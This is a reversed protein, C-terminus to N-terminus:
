PGKLSFLYEVLDVLEQETLAKASDEPMLSTATKTKKEISKVPLAYDKGNADRLTIETPTEKVILGTLAQGDDTDIKWTAYQDAIAKSPQLISEFLNERSAKKGIASLDPGIAGGNGEITHCRMCQAEGKLSARFVKRGAAASGTRKALEANSPLAKLDLKAPPPFLKVARAKTDKNASNRLLRGTEADLDAPLENKEKSYFLFQSGHRNAALAALSAHRLEEAATTQMVLDELYKLADGQPHSYVQSNPLRPGLAKVCEVALTSQSKAIKLLSATAIDERIAALARVAEIRLEKPGELAIKEVDPAAMAYGTAAVLQLGISTSKADQLLAAITNKLEYSDVLPRWKTMIHQGLCAVARAKVEAPQNGKLLTLLIKGVSPDDNVGLCDVIRVEQANTLKANGFLKEMVPVM